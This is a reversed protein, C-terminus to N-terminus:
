SKTPSFRRFVSYMYLFERFGSKRDVESFYMSKIKPIQRLFKCKFKFFVECKVTYKSLLISKKITFWNSLNLQKNISEKKKRIQRLMNLSTVIKQFIQKFEMIKKLWYIMSMSVVYSSFKRAFFSNLFSKLTLRDLELM